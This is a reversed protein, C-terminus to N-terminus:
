TVKVLWIFNDKGQKIGAGRMTETTRGHAPELTWEGSERLKLIEADLEEKSYHPLHRRVDELSIMAADGSGISSGKDGSLVKAVASKIDTPGHKTSGGGSTFKGDDDRPHDSETFSSSMRSSTKPDSGHEQIDEGAKEAAEVSVPTYTIAGEPFDDTFKVWEYGKEALAERVKPDTALVRQAHHAYQEPILDMGAAESLASFLDDADSVDLLKGPDIDVRYITNGGFGPNNTYSQATELETSFSYGADVNDDNAARFLRIHGPKLPPVDSDQKTKATKGVRPKTATNAWTLIDKAHAKDEDDGYAMTEKLDETFEKIRKTDQSTVAKSFADIHKKDYGMAEMATRHAESIHPGKSIGGGSGGGSTFQGGGPGKGKHEHGEADTSLRLAMYQSGGARWASGIFADVQEHFERSTKSPLEQKGERILEWVLSDYDMRQDDDDYGGGWGLGPYQNALERSVKDLGKIRKHKSGADFGQNELRNVDAQTLDLRQRAYTKAAEREHHRDTEEQWADKAAQEYDTPEMGWQEAQHAVIRKWSRTNGPANEPKLRAASEGRQDFYGSVEAFKDAGSQEREKRLGDFYDGVESLKKGRLGSPGGKLIEGDASIQVPFGGAHEDEGDKRRGITIWRTGDAEMRIALTAPKKLDGYENLIDDPITKGAKVAKEVALRRYADEDQHQRLLKDVVSTATNLKEGLKRAQESNSNAKQEALLQNRITEQEETADEIANKIKALKAHQQVAMARWDAKHGKFRERLQQVEDESATVAGQSKYNEFLGRGHIATAASPNAETANSPHIAFNPHYKELWQRAEEVAQEANEGKDFYWNRLKAASWASEGKRQEGSHIPTKGTYEGLANYRGTAILKKYIKSGEEYAQRMDEKTLGLKDRNALLIDNIRHGSPTVNHPNWKDRNYVPNTHFLDRMDAVDKALSKYHREPSEGSAAKEAEKALKSVRDELSKLKLDSGQVTYEHAYGREAEPTSLLREHVQQQEALQMSAMALNKVKGIGPDGKTFGLMKLASELSVVHPQGKADRVHFQHVVDKGTQENREAEDWNSVRRPDDYEPSEEWMWKWDYSSLSAGSPGTIPKDFHVSSRSRRAGQGRAESETGVTKAESQPEPKAEPEKDERPKDLDDFLDQQGPLADLGSFLKKQRGVGTTEFQEQKVRKPENRLAFDEDDDGFSLGKQKPKGLKAREEPTAKEVEDSPIFEGGKYDKGNITVGGAPAHVAGMRMVKLAAQVLEAASLVGEGVALEPDLSMGIPRAAPPPQGPGPLRPQPQGMGAQSGPQGPQGQQGEGAQSQQEMAQQALPKHMVAYEEARGFNLKVLPQVIQKDLDGILGTAWTDLASFFAAMPIRKGAWAGSDSEIVDDPIELGHFIETDLDKPYQLIHAPNGPIAARTLQWQEVGERVQTPRVTVGGAQLQEVVQLALDRNAVEEGNIITVGDPYTMDKGGYADAHMFLRRVDTAGGQFAKDAWPSYAGMLITTGYHAGAEARHCHFWSKPFLLDVDGCGPVRQVRVGCKEGDVLLARTDVAHRGLLCDIEVTGRSTTRYMVEGASWGWVQATLVDDLGHLWIRKFQRTVFEGVEPRKAAVGPIWQPKGDAGAKGPYAFEIGQMPATRMALGLRVAPDLLMARIMEFNLPPLERPRQQYQASLSMYRRTKAPGLLDKVDRAPKAQGNTRQTMNLPWTMKEGRM